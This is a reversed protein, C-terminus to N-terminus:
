AHRDERIYESPQPTWSSRGARGAARHLWSKVTGASVGMSAAIEDVPLDALYFLVTAQRQKAPLLRLAAFLAVRDPSPAAM